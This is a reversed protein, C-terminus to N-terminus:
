TTGNDISRQWQYTLGTGTAAVTFTTNFGPCVPAAPATPQTTIAPLQNVNITVSASNSCGALTTSATYTTTVAPKAWVTYTPTGTHAVTAGADSYLNTLPSFVLPQLM